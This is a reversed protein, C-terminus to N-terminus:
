SVSVTTHKVWDRVAEIPDVMIGKKSVVHGLFAVLSLWFECKSFKAYIKKENPIKLVISM